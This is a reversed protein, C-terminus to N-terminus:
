VEMIEKEKQALIQDINEVAKDTEKQTQDLARKRQDESIDKSKELEKLFDNADRRHNRASVKAAECLKRAQKVLDRRREETLTPIPLRVLEGDSQPTLGIEAVNIAKTIEPIVSKDWPKIVILRADPISLSAVQNLPVRSGYYEVRVPELLALNARGTRIRALEKKFSEATKELNQHLEALTDEIM